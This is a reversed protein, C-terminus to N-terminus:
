LSLSVPLNFYLLHLSQSDTEKNRIRFFYQFFKRLLKPSQFYSEIKAGAKLFYDQPSFSFSAIKLINVYVNLSLVFCLICSAPTFFDGTSM